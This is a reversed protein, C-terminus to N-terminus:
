TTMFKLIAAAEEGCIESCEGRNCFDLRMLATVLEFTRCENGTGPGQRAACLFCIRKMTMSTCNKQGSYSGRDWFSDFGSPYHPLRQTKAKVQSNRGTVAKRLHLWLAM